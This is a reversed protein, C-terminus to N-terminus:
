ITSGYLIGNQSIAFTYGCKCVFFDSCTEHDMWSDFDDVGNRGCVPCVVEYGKAYGQYETYGGSVKDLEDDSLKGRKKLTIDSKKLDSLKIDHEAM